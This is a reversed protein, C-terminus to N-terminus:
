AERRADWLLTAINNRYEMESSADRLNGNSTVSGHIDQLENYPIYNPHQEVLTFMMDDQSNNQIYNHLAFAAM